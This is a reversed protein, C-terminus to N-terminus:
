KNMRRSKIEYPDIKAFDPHHQRIQIFLDAMLNSMDTATWRDAVNLELLQLRSEMLATQKKQEDILPMIEEIITRVDSSINEKAVNIRADILFTVATTISAILALSFGLVSIIFKAMSLGQINSDIEAVVRKM